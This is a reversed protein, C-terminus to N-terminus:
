TGDKPTYKWGNLEYVRKRAEERNHYLPEDAPSHQSGGNSIYTCVYIRFSRGYPTYSYEGIKM